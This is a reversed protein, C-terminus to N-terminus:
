MCTLGTVQSWSVPGNFLFVRQNIFGRDSGGVSRTPRLARCTAGAPVQLDMHQHTVAPNGSKWSKCLSMEPV